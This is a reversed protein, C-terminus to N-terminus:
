IRNTIWLLLGVGALVLSSALAGICLVLIEPKM